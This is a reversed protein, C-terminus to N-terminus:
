ASPLFPKLLSLVSAVKQWNVEEEGDPYLDDELEVSIDNIDIWSKNSNNDKIWQGVTIEYYWYRRFTCRSGSLIIPKMDGEMGVLPSMKLESIAINDDSFDSFQIQDMNLIQIWEVPSKELPLCTHGAKIFLSLFVLCLRVEDSLNGYEKELFRVVEQEYTGIWGAEIGRDFWGNVQIQKSCRQM